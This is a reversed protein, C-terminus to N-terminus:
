KNSGKIKNIITKDKLLSILNNVIESRSLDVKDSTKNLLDINDTKITYSQIKTKM